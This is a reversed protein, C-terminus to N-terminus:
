NAKIVAKVGIGNNTTVKLYYVGNELDNLDLVAEKTLSGTQKLVKGNVDMLDAQMGSEFPVMVNLTSNTPNPFASIMGSIDSADNIGSVTVCFSETTSSTFAENTLAALVNEDEVISFTGDQECGFQTAGDIGDSRSDYLTFEYCGSALCYEESTSADDFESGYGGNSAVVNGQDDKIDWSTEEPYCDFAINVDVYAAAGLLATYDSSRSDNAMNEDTQGNPANTRANFEHDGGLLALSQLTVLESEGFELSGTWQMSNSYDGDYGYQITVSTLAENGANRIRVAPNAVTETCYFGSPADISLVMADYDLDSANPDFGNVTIVGSNAPDLWDKLRKSAGGADDWSADLRGYDDQRGNDVTGSCAAAGRWLQGVIRKNEDFLPSGSSGGETVGQTWDPIRWYQGSNDLSSPSSNYYCIKKVDGRPHHIGTVNAAASTSRNWGAYYVEYSPDPVSNLELLWMDSTAESARTVAGNVNDTVPGESSPSTTACSLTPSEYNFRFVITGGGTGGCHNASLFYPTGDGTANNILAGSCLGGGMLMKAVARKEIQWDDGLPCNVDINCDGSENVKLDDKTYISRYGQVIDFVTLSSKGVVSNPEFLELIVEDNFILDTGLLAAKNNNRSTYAGDVQSQDAAYLHLTAGEPLYFDEIELSVSTAEPVSIGLQWVRGGEINSWSGSNDLSYNVQHEIGFRYPVLQKDREIDEAKIADIDLSATKVYSTNTNLDFGKPTIARNVQAFSLNIMFFGIVLLTPQKM